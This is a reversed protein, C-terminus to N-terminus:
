KGDDKKPIKTRTVVVPPPPPPPGIEAFKDFDTPRRLRLYWAKQGNVAAEKPFSVIVNDEKLQDVLDKLVKPGVGITTRATSFAVEKKDTILQILRDRPSSDPGVQAAALEAEGLAKWECRVPGDNGIVTFRIPSPPTERLAGRRKLFAVQSWLFKGFKDQSSRMMLVVDPAAARQHHGSMEDLESGNGGKRTHSVVWVSCGSATVIDLIWNAILSQDEEANANGQFIRARSDLFIRGWRGKRADDEIAMARESDPRFGTRVLPIIRSTCEPDVGLMECCALLLDAFSNVADEEEVMLVFKGIPVPTVERGLVKVPPGFTASAVALMATLTTKGANSPGSVEVHCADTAVGHWAWAIPEAQRAKLAEPGITADETIRPNLMCRAYAVTQEFPIITGDERREVVQALRKQEEALLKKPLFKGGGTKFEEESIQDEDDEVVIPAPITSLDLITVKGAKRAAASVRWSEQLLRLSDDIVIVIPESPAAVEPTLEATTDKKVEDVQRADADFTDNKSTMPREAVAPNAETGDREKKHTAPESPSENAPPTTSTIPSSLSSSANSDVIPDPQMDKLGPLRATDNIATLIESLDKSIEKSKKSM